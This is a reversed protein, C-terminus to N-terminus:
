DLRSVQKPSYGFFKIFATSFNSAHNYGVLEAAISVPYHGSKLLQYAQRMRIELLLGYPTNDFFHHFLQKLKCQNTGVRRSLEEVSPPNKFESALIDRAQYALARDKPTFRPQRIDANILLHSLESALIAMAQGQRFLPRMEGAVNCNLLSQAAVIGSASIPQQSILQMANKRNFFDALKSEGFYGDLWRKSLSFRLQTVAKNGQYQRSGESANFTTISTYGEQFVVENGRNDTFRSRGKLGLTVVMRPETADMRTQIALDQSPTYHTEIYNLNSDLKFINSHGPGLTEPLRQLQCNDEPLFQSLLEHNGINRVHTAPPTTPM